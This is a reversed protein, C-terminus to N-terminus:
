SHLRVLNDASCVVRTIPPRGGVASHPRHWNYHHLWRTLAQAREESHRYLRVYAWELLATKIFREAKGNTRPTYPRTFLHRLGLAHCTAAFRRSRYGSGNDTMIAGVRVGLRRLGRVTRRLFGAATGGREDPLLEGTGLRSADDIAMHAFQWGAGRVTDRRNGSIRHGPRVIRALKKVDLHLLEGPRAREYRRSTPPLELVHLRAWGSRAIIRAVTARSVGVTAAIAQATLRQRHRLVKIRLAVAPATAQARPRPRSSRDVLPGADEAARRVWKRITKETVHLTRAVHRASEGLHTVRRVAEERGRPTLRANQHINM